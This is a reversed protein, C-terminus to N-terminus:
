VASGPSESELERLRKKIPWEAKALFLALALAVLPMLAGLGIWGPYGAKELIRWGAWAPGFIVLGILCIILFETLGIPGM